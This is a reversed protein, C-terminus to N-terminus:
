PQKWLLSCNHSIVDFASGAAFGPVQERQHKGYLLYKGPGEPTFTAKGDKDATLKQEKPQPTIVTIEADPLPKGRFFVRVEGPNGTPVIDFNLAPEAAGFSPQHWRAYFFPKRTPGEGHKMVIFGTEALTPKAPSANLLLFGDTQKKVELPTPKGKEGFTWATVPFIGDLHGPSKEYAEGYEAFRLILQNEPGEEIWVEHAPAALVLALLTLLIFLTILLTRQM